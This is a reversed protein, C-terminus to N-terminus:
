SRELVWLFEMLSTLRKAPLRNEGYSTTLILHVYVSARTELDEEDKTSLGRKPDVKLGKALGKVGGMKKLLKPSKPDILKYLDEVGFEFKKKHSALTVVDESPDYKQPCISM